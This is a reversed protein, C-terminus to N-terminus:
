PVLVWEGSALKTRAEQAMPLDRRLQERTIKRAGPNGERLPDTPSGVRTRAKTFGKAAMDEADARISAEDSGVLRAILEDRLNLEKGVRERLTAMKLAANEAFLTDHAEQLKQEKTLDLQRKEEDRRKYGANETEMDKLRKQTLRLEAATRNDPKPEAAPATRAPTELPAPDPTEEEGPEDGDIIEPM